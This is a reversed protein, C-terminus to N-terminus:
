TGNRARDQAWAPGRDLALVVEARVEAGSGARTPRPNRTRASRGTPPMPEDTVEYGLTGDTRQEPALPLRLHALIRRVTEAKTIIAVPRLNGGCGPRSTPDFGFSRRLLTAWHV